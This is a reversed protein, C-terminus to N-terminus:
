ARKEYDNGEMAEFETAFVSSQMVQMNLESVNTLGKGRNSWITSETELEGDKVELITGPVGFESKSALGINKVVRVKFNAVNEGKQFRIGKM